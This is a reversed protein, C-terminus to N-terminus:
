RCIGPYRRMGARVLDERGGTGPVEVGPEPPKHVTGIAKCLPVHMGSVPDEIKAAPRAEEGALKRPPHALGTRNDRHIELLLHEADEPLLHGPLAEEGADPRVLAGRIGKAEGRLQVSGNIGCECDEDKVLDGAGTLEEALDCREEDRSAQEENCFGRENNGAPLEPGGKHMRLFSPERQLFPPEEEQVPCRHQPLTRASDVIQHIVDGENAAPQRARMGPIEGRSRSMLDGSSDAPHRTCGWLGGTAAPLHQKPRPLSGSRRLHFPSGQVPHRCENRSPRSIRCKPFPSGGGRMVAVSRCYGPGQHRDQRCGERSVPLMFERLPLIRGPIPTGLSLRSCLMPILILAIVLILGPLIGSLFLKGISVEAIAGYVIMMISPPIIPGNVCSTAVVACSFGKKYGQKTMAPIMLSGMTACDATGSGSIGSLLASAVITVHCLGGKIHGVLADSFDVLQQTIGAAEMIEGALMFFPIALLVLSEVGGYMRQAILMYTQPNDILLFTFYSVGGLIFAIPVGAFLFIFFSVIIFPIM